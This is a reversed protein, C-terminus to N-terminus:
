ALQQQTALKKMQAERNLLDRCNDSFLDMPMIDNYNAAYASGTFKNYSHKMADNFRAEHIWKPHTTVRDASPREFAVSTPHVFTNTRSAASAVVLLGDWPGHAKPTKEKDLEAPKMRQPQRQVNATEASATIAFQQNPTHFSTVTPINSRSSGYGSSVNNIVHPFTTPQQQENSDRYQNQQQNNYGYPQQQQQPPQQYGYMENPLPTTTPAAGSNYGYQQQYADQQQQQPPQQQQNNYGYQQPQQQYGNNNNFQQQQQPPQNYGMNNTNSAFNTSGTPKQTQLGTVLSQLRDEIHTRQRKPASQMQQMQTQMEIRQRILLDKEDKLTQLEAQKLRTAESAVVHLARPDQASDIAQRQQDNTVIGLLMSKCVDVNNKLQQKHEAEMTQRQQALSEKEQKFKYTQNLLAFSEEKTLQQGSAMKQVAADYLQQEEEPTMEKPESNDGVDDMGDMQQQQGGLSQQQGDFAM